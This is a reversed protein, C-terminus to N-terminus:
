KQQLTYDALLTGQLYANDASSFFRQFLRLSEERLVNGTIEMKLSSYLPALTELRLNTGGGMVDEYGYIIRRVNNVILTAYCMLCPEMTSYVSVRSLEIEPRARQLARLAVIEAHDLESFDMSNKRGGSAVVEGDAVLVCGVPFEGIALAAEAETLALRMFHEDAPDIKKLMPRMPVTSNDYSRM